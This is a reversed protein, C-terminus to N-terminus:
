LKQQHRHLRARNSQLATGLMYGLQQLQVCSKTLPIQLRGKQILALPVKVAM